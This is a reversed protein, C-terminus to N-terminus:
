AASPKTYHGTVTQCLYGTTVLQDLVVSCIRPELAWLRRAQDATLTLGPMEDFEQRVTAMVTEIEPFHRIAHAM